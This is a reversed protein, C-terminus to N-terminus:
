TPGLRKKQRDKLQVNLRNSYHQAVLSLGTSLQNMINTESPHSAEAYDWLPRREEDDTMGEVAHSYIEMYYHDELFGGATSSRISSFNPLGSCLYEDPLTLGTTDCSFSAGLHEHVGPDKRTM